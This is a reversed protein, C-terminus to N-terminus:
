SAAYCMRSRWHLHTCHVFNPSQSSPRVKLMDITAALEQQSLSAEETTKKMSSDQQSALEQLASVEAAQANLEAQQAASQQQQHALQQEADALSAQM